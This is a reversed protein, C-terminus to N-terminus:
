RKKAVVLMVDRPDLHASRGGIAGRGLRALPRAAAGFMRQLRNTVLRLSVDRGVTGSELTHFGERDLLRRLTEETFFWAHEPIIQRWRAGLLRFWPNDLTPTEILFLGGPRLLEAVRAVEACPDPLHEIVHLMVVVDFSTPAYGAEALTGPFLTVGHESLAVEVLRGNPEVGAVEFGRERALALLQGDSAGVELLRRGPAHRQLADLRRRLGAARNEREAAEVEPDLFLSRRAEEAIREAAADAARGGEGMQFRGESEVRVLGCGGCRLLPGDLKPSRLLELAETSACLVCPKLASEQVPPRRILAPDSLSLDPTIM